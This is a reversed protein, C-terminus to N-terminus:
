EDAYAEEYSHAPCLAQQFKINMETFAEEVIGGDVKVLDLVHWFERFIDCLLFLPSCHDNGRIDTM